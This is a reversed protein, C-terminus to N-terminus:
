GTCTWGDLWSTAADETMDADVPQLCIVVGDDILGLAVMSGTQAGGLEVAPLALQVDGTGPHPLAAIIQGTLVMPDPYSDGISPSKRLGFLGQSQKSVDTVRVLLKNSATRGAPWEWRYNAKAMDWAGGTNPIGWVAIGLAALLPLTFRKM